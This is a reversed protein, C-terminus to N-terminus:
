GESWSGHLYFLNWILGSNLDRSIGVVRPDPDPDSLLIEPRVAARCQGGKFCKVKVRLIIKIIPFKQFLQSPEHGIDKTNGSGKRTERFSVLGM